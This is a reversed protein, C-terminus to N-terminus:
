DGLRIRLDERERRTAELDFRVAALDLRYRELADRAITMVRSRFLAQEVVDNMLPELEARADSPLARIRERLATMEEPVGFAGKGTDKTANM